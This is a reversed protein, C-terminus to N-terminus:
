GENKTLLEHVSDDLSTWKDCDQLCSRMEPVHLTGHGELCVLETGSWSLLLCGPCGIQAALGFRRLCIRCRRRQDYISWSLGGMCGLLFLWTTLPETALDKGGLMTISPASTFELGALLVLLLLLATKSVFFAAGAVARPRRLRFSFRISPIIIIIALALALAFSSLVSRVTEALPSIEILSSWPNIGHAQVISELEAAVDGTFADRRLRVVVGAEANSKEPWGTIRWVGIRRNLFWFDRALVGAVRLKRGDMTVTTPTRGAYNRSVLDYALVVCDRCGQFADRSFAEGGASRAGVLSFFNDTIVARITRAGDVTQEAWSYTAAGEILHSDQRWWTVWQNRIGSRTALTTGGRAVTAIRDPTSYPLASLVSRTEALLGSTMVILLLLSSLAALCFWPSEIGRSVATVIKDRDWNCTRYWIADQFAGTAFEILRQSQSEAGRDRMTRLAYHLEAAWERHWEARFDSPVLFAALRILWSAQRHAGPRLTRFKM